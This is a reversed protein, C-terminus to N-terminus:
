GGEIDGEGEEGQVRGGGTGGEGEEVKVRRRYRGGRRGRYGGEM